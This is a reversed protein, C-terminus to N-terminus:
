FICGTQSLYGYIWGSGPPRSGSEDLMEVLKAGFGTDAGTVYFRLAWWLAGVSSMRLILLVSVKGVM